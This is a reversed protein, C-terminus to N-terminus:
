ASANGLTQIYSIIPEITKQDTFDVKSGFTELVGRDEDTMEEPKKRSIISKLMSMMIKHIFNLKKYDIGGRLHFIKIKNLIEQTFNKELIPKFKEKEDTSSLGVTFVIIQKDKIRQFNKTILSVGNIGSAYLGGGFVITDYSLLSEPKIKSCEYLDCNLANAIWEAYKKTSGYKSKYLVVAKSM